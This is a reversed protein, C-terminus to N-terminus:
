DLSFFLRSFGAMLSHVNTMNKPVISLLFCDLKTDKNRHEIWLNCFSTFDLPDSFSTLKSKEGISIIPDECQPSIRLWYSTAIHQGSKFKKM